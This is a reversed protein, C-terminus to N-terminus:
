MALSASYLDESLQAGVQMLGQKPNTPDENGKLVEQADLMAKRLEVVARDTTFAASSAPDVPIIKPKEGSALDGKQWREADKEVPKQEGGVFERRVIKLEEPWKAEKLKFPDKIQVLEATMKENSGRFQVGLKFTPATEEAWATEIQKQIAGVVNRLAERKRNLEEVGTTYQVILVPLKGPLAGFRKGQLNTADFPINLEALKGALETPYKKNGLVQIADDLVLDLEQMRENSAKVEAALDQAGSITIKADDGRQKAGGATFGVGIGILAAIVAFVATKKSAKRREAVVEEGIEVKITQAQAVPKPEAKRKPAATAFPPLPIGPSLGPPPAIGASKNMGGPPGPVGGALVPGSAPPPTSGTGPTPLPVAAGGSAAMTKGLRAKLDIKPKRKKEEDAM